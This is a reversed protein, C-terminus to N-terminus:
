HTLRRVELIEVRDVYTAKNLSDSLEYDEESWKHEVLYCGLKQSRKLINWSHSQFYDSNVSLEAIAEKSRFDQNTIKKKVVICYGFNKLALRMLFPSDQLKKLEKETANLLEEDKEEWGGYIAPGAGLLDIKKERKSNIQINTQLMANNQKQIEKELEKIETDLRLMRQREPPRVTDPMEICLRYINNFKVEAIQKKEILGAYTQRDLVGLAIRATIETLTEDKTANLVLLAVEEPVSANNNCQKKHLYNRCNGYVIKSKNQHAESGKPASKTYAPKQTRFSFSGGCEACSLLGSTLHFTPQKPTRTRQKRAQQIEYFEEHTLIGQFAQVGHWIGLMADYNDLWRALTRPSAEFKYKLSLLSCIERLGEGSLYLAVIERIIPSYKNLKKTEKDVWMPYSQIREPIVGARAKERRDEWAASVRASLRASYENASQIKGALVFFQKTNLSEKTYTVDDELTILSIGAGLIQSVLQFADLTAARSLRDIAEVVLADGKVLLGAEIASLIGGLGRKLNHKKYASLGRDQASLSSEFYEKNHKALWADFMARQREISSGKAQGSSSFRSYSVAQKM